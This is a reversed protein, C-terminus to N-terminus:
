QAEPVPTEVAAAKGARFASISRYVMYISFATMLFAFIFNSILRAQLVQGRVKLFFPLILHVLLLTNMLANSLKLSQISAPIPRNNNRAYKLGFFASIFQALIILEFIPILRKDTAWIARFSTTQNLIYLDFTVARILMIATVFYYCRIPNKLKKAQFLAAVILAIVGAASFSGSYMWLLSYVLYGFCFKGTAVITSIAIASYGTAKKEYRETLFLYIRNKLKVPKPTNM